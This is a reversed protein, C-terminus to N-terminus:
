WKKKGKGKNKGHGKDKNKGHGKDKNKGHGGGQEVFVPPRKGKSKIKIRIPKGARYRKYKGPPLGLLGPPVHARAVLSWHTRYSASWYWSGHWLAWYYGDVYFVEQDHNHVVHLGPGIVVVAPEAVFTIPPGAHVRPRLIICSSLGFLAVAVLIQKHHACLSRDEHFTRKEFVAVGASFDHLELGFRSVLLYSNFQSM